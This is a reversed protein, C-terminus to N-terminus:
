SSSLVKIMEAVSEDDPTSEDAGPATPLSVIFYTMGQYRQYRLNGGMLKTIHAAIALGLGISGTLLPQDGDHAFREFMTGLREEDVGPGNDAVEIEVTRENATVVM